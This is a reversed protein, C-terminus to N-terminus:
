ELRTALCNEIDLVSTRYGNDELLILLAAFRRGITFVGDSHKFEFTIYRPRIKAFPFGVLLTADYGEADTVLLDIDSIDYREILGTFTLAPVEIGDVLDKLDPHHTTAHVPNLSGLQDAYPVVSTSDRRPAYFTVCDVDHETIAANLVHVADNDAHLAALEDFLYGIPEVLLVPGQAARQAVLDASQGGNHAGVIVLSYAVM